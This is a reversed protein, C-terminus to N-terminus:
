YWEVVAYIFDVSTARRGSTDNNRVQFRLSNAKEATEVASTVDWSDTSKANQGQRVPANVSAWIDSDSSKNRQGVRWELKEQQFGADEFHEVFIVVSKIRAGAPISPDSFDYCTNSRSGTELRGNDSAQVTSIKDKLTVRKSEEWSYCDVVTLTEKLPSKLSTVTLVFSQTDTVPVNNSDAVQIQVDYTGAQTYTPRWEILGTVSNITMGDPKAILSYVLTDQPDPDKAEVDYTYLAWVRATQSPKSTIRPADNVAVVTVEVTATDTGGKGDSLTYSFTDTGSFSRNPAYTLSGDTNITVSGNRGQTANVVILRDGDGDTDNALVNITMIPADEQITAKDDNAIPLDNVPTVMIAVAGPVSDKKGDNVKFTISDPGAFHENPSYVLEPPTGNLEGHSPGDIVQYTLPNGDHDDGSLVISIPTDEQTTVSDAKATPPHNAKRIIIKAVVIMFFISLISGFLLILRAKM